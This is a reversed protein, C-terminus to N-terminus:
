LSAAVSSAGTAPIHYPCKNTLRSQSLAMYNWGTWILPDSPSSIELTHSGARLPIRLLQDKDDALTVIKWDDPKNSWGGPPTLPLGLCQTSPAEGGVLLDFGSNADRMCYRITVSYFGAKEM